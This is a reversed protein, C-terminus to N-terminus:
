ITKCIGSIKNRRSGNPCRPLKNKKTKNSTEKKPSKVSNKNECLGTIKNKRTGNPCRKKDKNIFPVDPIIEQIDKEEIKIDKGKNDKAAPLTKSNIYNNILKDKEKILSGYYFNNCRDILKYNTQNNLSVRLVLIPIQKKLGFVINEKKEVTFTLNRPLLIEKENKYQTTNIMDILPVGKDILIKYLCCSSGTNLSSFRLAVRFDKSVSIFNSIVLKDGINVLNPFPSKMGRFYISKDNENRKSAELFARDLDNIKNIIAERAEQITKGFRKYYVKFSDSSIYSEGQRLYLNIAQDWQYSYNHLAKHLVSEFYVDIKYPLNKKEIKKENLREQKIREMEKKDTEKIKDYKKKFLGINQLALYEKNIFKDNTLSDKIDIKIIRDKLFINKFKKAPLLIKKNILYGINIYEDKSKYTIDPLFTDNGYQCKVFIDNITPIELYSRKLLFIKNNKEYENKIRTKNKIKSTRSSTLRIRNRPIVIIINDEEMDLWEKINYKELNIPDYGFM